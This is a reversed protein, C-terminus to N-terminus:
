LRSFPAWLTSFIWDVCCSCGVSFGMTVRPAAM